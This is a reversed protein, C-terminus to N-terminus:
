LLKGLGMLSSDGGINESISRFLTVSVVVAFFSIMFAIVVRTMLVTVNFERPENVMDDSAWTAVKGFLWNFLGISNACTKYDSESYMMFGERAIDKMVEGGVELGEDVYGVLGKGATVEPMDNIPEGFQADAMTGSYADCVIEDFLFTSIDSKIMPSTVLSLVLGPVGAVRSVIKPLLKGGTKVGTKLASKSVGGLFKGGYHHVLGKGALSLVDGAMEATMHSDSFKQEAIYAERLQIFTESIKLLSQRCEASECAKVPLIPFSLGYEYKYYKGMDLERFDDSQGPGMFSINISYFEVAGELSDLDLANGPKKAKVTCRVTDSFVAEGRCQTKSVADTAIKSEDENWVTYNYVPLSSTFSINLSGDEDVTSIGAPEVLMIFKSSTDGGV